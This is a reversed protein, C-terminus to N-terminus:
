SVSLLVAASAGVPVHGRGRRNLRRGPLPCLTLSGCTASTGTLGRTTAVLSTCSGMIALPQTAGAGRLCCRPRPVTWGPRLGPTLSESVTATFRMTPISHGLATLAAGLCMCTAAWCQPQTSTGGARLTARRLLLSFLPFPEACLSPPSRSEGNASGVTEEISPPSRPPFLFPLGKYLYPDM